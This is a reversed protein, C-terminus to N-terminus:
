LTLSSEFRSVHMCVLFVQLSSYSRAATTAAEASIYDLSQQPPHSLHDGAAISFADNDLSTQFLM